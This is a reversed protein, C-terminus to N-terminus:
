VCVVRNVDTLGVVIDDGFGEDDICSAAEEELMLSRGAVLECVDVQSLRLRKFIGNGM